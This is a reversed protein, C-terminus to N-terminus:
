LIKKLSISSLWIDCPNEGRKIVLDSDGAKFQVKYTGTTKNLPINVTAADELVISGTGPSASPITYTLLYFDASVVIGAKKISSNGSSGVIIKGYGDEVVSGGVATWYSADDFGTDGILEPGLGNPFIEGTGTFSASCTLNDEVGADFSVSSVLANGQWHTIDTPDQYDTANDTTEIQWSSTFISDDAATNGASPYLYFGYSTVPGADSAETSVYGQIRTWTSTSLGTINVQANAPATTSLTGPGELISWTISSAPFVTASGGVIRYINFKCETKAGTGTTGKVYFSWTIKKNALQGADELYQLRTSTGSVVIIKSATSGGFPDAQLNTQTLSTGVTLFGDVGIQTLNTRIINRIRDSFSLDVITGNKLKDFFDTGDLPVDPNVSQLIDTSVEFSKLGPLSESWGNSDKNTVDRLDMNTSYSASTSFAVPDFIASSGPEVIEIIVANENLTATGSVIELTPVIGNAGNYFLSYTYDGDVVNSGSNYNNTGNTLVTRIASLVAAANNASAATEVDDYVAGADSTINNIKVTGTTGGDPVSIPNTTLVRIKTVQNNAASTKAYVLLDSANQIAM